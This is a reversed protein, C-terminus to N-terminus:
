TIIKPYPKYSEAGLPFMLVDGQQQWEAGNEDWIRHGNRWNLAELITDCDPHVGEIHYEFTSPNLMKLFPRKRGDKLDLALLEYVGDSSVELCEAHLDKILRELGIKKVIEARVQANETTLVLDASLDAAPTAAIEKPVRVGNLYFIGWGDSYLVAAGNENHLRGSESFHIEIPKESVFCIDKAPYLWGCEKACEILGRCKDTEDTLGVVERFYDYFSLWTEQQGFVPNELAAWSISNNSEEILDVILNQVLDWIPNGVLNWVLDLVPSLVLVEALELIPFSVSTAVSQRVAAAAADRVSHRVSNKVSSRVTEWDSDHVLESVIDRVSDLVPIPVSERLLDEIKTNESRKLVEIALCMAIPSTCHVIKEPVKLGGCRYMSDIAQRIKDKEPPTTDLGIKIWKIVIKNLENKQADTLETIM